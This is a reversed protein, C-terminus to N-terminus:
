HFHFHVKCRFIKIWAKYLDNRSGSETSLKASEAEKTSESEDPEVEHMPFADSIYKKTLM